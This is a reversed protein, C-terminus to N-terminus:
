GVVRLRPGEEKQQLREAVQGLDAELAGEPYLQALRAYMEASWWPQSALASAIQTVNLPKVEIQVRDPVAIESGRKPLGFPLAIDALHSHADLSTGDPRLFPTKQKQRAKEADQDPYALADMRKGARDAETEALAKHEEGWVAATVPFGWADSAAEPELRYFLDEGDYRRARVSIQLDGYLMPRVAIEDGNVIGDLGAVKYTRVTAAAPHKFTILGNRVKRVEERGELFQRCIGADPLLRLQDATIRRWLDYRSVGTLGPRRLANDERPILNANFANQWALAADNLQDVNEVPEFKLRSEFKTEIINNAGEVGGKVRAKGAAHEIAEVDLAQLLNKVVASTNASGKDWVLMRPVGHFDRGEIKSWAWLLFEALTGQNEGAAQYYKFAIVSSAHDWDVYRWVKLKVKAYNSLKNKYFKDADMMAQQGNPLYYLVCLSPDVQHVHNPHLSRMKVASDTQAQAAVNVKRQRMLRNLHGNSVPLQIDNQELVSAATPTFMIQKGNARVSERQVAALIDISASPVCTTGKDTRTKRGSSWGVEKKLLTYLKSISWGYLAKVENVITGREGHGAADLRRAIEALHARTEPSLSM